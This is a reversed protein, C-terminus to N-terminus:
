GLNFPCHWSIKQKQNKEHILKGWAGSYIMLATEFKKSFERLYECSLTSWRYWRCRQCIKGGTESTNNIDTAFNGGTDVISAALLNAAPTLLVTPLNGGTDIVGAAFKGGTDNVCTFAFIYMYTLEVIWLHGLLIILIKRILSKKWKGGTDVVSTTLRSSLIDRCIKSFIRFPGLPISQPQPSVSSSFFWFCFIEHCQGKLHM